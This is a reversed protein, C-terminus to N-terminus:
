QNIRGNSGVPKGRTIVMLNQWCVMRDGNIVAGYDEKEKVWKVEVEVM